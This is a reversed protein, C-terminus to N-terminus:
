QENEIIETYVTNIIFMPLASSTQRTLHAVMERLAHIYKSFNDKIKELYM